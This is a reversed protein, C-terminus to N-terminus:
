APNVFGDWDEIFSEIRNRMRTQIGEVRNQIDPHELVREDVVFARLMNDVENLATDVAEVQAVLYELDEGKAKPDFPSLRKIENKLATMEAKVEKEIGKAIAERDQKLEKVLDRLERVTMRQLEDIEIGALVGKNELEKLDEEPAELLAAIQGFKEFQSFDISPRKEAKLAINMFRYATPITMGLEGTIIAGFEGYGEKERIVVLLKGVMMMSEATRTLYFKAHGIYSERTYPLDGAIQATKVDRTLRETERLELARTEAHECSRCHKKDKECGECPHKAKKNAM